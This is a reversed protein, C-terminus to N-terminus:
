KEDYDGKLVKQYFEAFPLEGHYDTLAKPDKKLASIINNKATIVPDEISLTGNKSIICVHGNQEILDFAKEMLKEEEPTMPKDPNTLHRRKLGM